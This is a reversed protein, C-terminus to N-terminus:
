ENWFGGLIERKKEREKQNQIDLAKFRDIVSIKPM